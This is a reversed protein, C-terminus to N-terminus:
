HKPQVLVRSFNKVWSSVLLSTDIVQAVVLWHISGYYTTAANDAKEKETLEESNDGVKGQLVM